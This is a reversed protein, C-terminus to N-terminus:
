SLAEINVRIKNNWDVESFRHLFQNLYKKLEEYREKTKAEFKVTLYPGNQSYRVVFMSDPMDLRV